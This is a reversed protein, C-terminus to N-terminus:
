LPKFAVRQHPEKREPSKTLLSISYLCRVVDRKQEVNWREWVQEVSPGQNAELLLPNIGADRRKELADIQPQLDQEILAFSRVTLQGAKRLQHADNMESKIRALESRVESAESSRDRAQAIVQSWYSPDSLKVLVRNTVLENLTEYKISTCNSDACVYYEIGRVKHYRLRGGGCKECSVVDKGGCLHVIGGARHTKRSEDTLKNYVTWYIEEDILAPWNGDLVEGRYTRKGIYSPKILLQRVQTYTWEKWAFPIRWTPVPIARRNLDKALSTGSKGKYIWEFMERVAPATDPDIDWVGKSVPKYGFPLRSHPKGALANAKQGRLTRKRLRAAEKVNLLADLGAFFEDDDDNLDLLRGGICLKTDTEQLIGALELHGKLTRDNRSGEWCVLVDAEGARLLELLKVYDPRKKKSYKSAGINNETFVAVVEWDNTSCVAHNDKNQDTVSKARGSTDRSARNFIVAKNM